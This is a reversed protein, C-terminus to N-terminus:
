RVRPVPQSSRLSDIRGSFVLGGAESSGFVMGDNDGRVSMRLRGLPARYFSIDNGTAMLNYKIDSALGHVEGKLALKGGLGPAFM